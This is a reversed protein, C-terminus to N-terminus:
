DYINVDQDNNTNDSVPSQTPGLYWVSDKQM